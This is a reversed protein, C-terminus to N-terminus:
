ITRCIQRRGWRNKTRRKVTARASACATDARLVVSLERPAARVAACRLLALAEQPTAETFPRHPDFARHWCNLNYRDRDGVRRTSDSQLQAMDGKAANVRDMTVLLGGGIAEGRRAPPLALPARFGRRYEHQFAQELIKDVEPDGSTAECVDCFGISVAVRCRIYGIDSPQRFAIEEMRKIVRGRKCFECM